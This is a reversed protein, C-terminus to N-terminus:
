RMFIIKNQYTKNEKAYLFSNVGLSIEDNGLLKHSITDIDYTIQILYVFSENTYTKLFKLIKNLIYKKFYLVDDFNFDIINIIIFKNQDWVKSGLYSNKSLNCNKKGLITVDDVKKWGGINEEINFKYNSFFIKLLNILNTHSKVKQIFFKTCFFDFKDFESIDTCCLNYFFQGWFTEIFDSSEFALNTNKSIYFSKKLLINNFIDFFKVIEQNKNFDYYDFISNEIFENPINSQQSIVGFRNTYLIIKDNKDVILDSIENVTNSLSPIHKILVFNNFDKKLLSQLLKLISDFSYEYPFKAIKRILAFISKRETSIINTEQM